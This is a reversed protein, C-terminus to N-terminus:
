FIYTEKKQFPKKKIPFVYRETASVNGTRESFEKIEKSRFDELLREGHRAAALIEDQFINELLKNSNVMHILTQSFFRPLSNPLIFNRIFFCTSNNWIGFMVDCALSLDSSNRIIGHSIHFIGLVATKQQQISSTGSYNPLNRLKWVITIRRHWAYTKQFLFM